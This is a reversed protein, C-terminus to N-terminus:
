RNGPGPGADPVKPRDQEGGSAQIHAQAPLRDVQEGLGRRAAARDVAEDVALVQGSDEAREVERVRVRVRRKPRLRGRRLLRQQRVRGRVHALADDSRRGRLGGGRLDVALRANGARLVVETPAGLEKM